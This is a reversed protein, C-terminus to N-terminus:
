LRSIEWIKELDLNESELSEVQSADVSLRNREKISCSIWSCLLM